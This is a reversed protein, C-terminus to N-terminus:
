SRVSFGLYSMVGLSSAFLMSGVGVPNISYLYARKFEIHQPSLKLPKNITLDAFLSGLWALAILAYIGLTAEFAHYIGLEMLALSIFVNFILWVVRGPHSHTLRSFIRGRSPVPM